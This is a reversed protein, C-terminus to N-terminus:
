PLHVWIQVLGTYCNVEFQEGEPSVYQYYWALLQDADTWIGDLQLQLSPNGAWDRAAAQAAAPTVPFDMTAPDYPVVRFDARSPNGSLAAVVGLIWLTCLPYRPYNPQM